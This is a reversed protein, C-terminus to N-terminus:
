QLEFMEGHFVCTFPGASRHILANFRSRSLVVIARIVCAFQIPSLPCHSDDGVQRNLIFRLQLELPRM